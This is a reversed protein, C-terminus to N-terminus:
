LVTQNLFNRRFLIAAVETRNLFYRCFHIAAVLHAIKKELTGKSSCNSAFVDSLNLSRSSEAFKTSLNNSINNSTPNSISRKSPDATVPLSIQSKVSRTSEPSLEPLPSLVSSMHNSSTQYAISRESPDATVPLSFLSSSTNYSDNRSMTISSHHMRRHDTDVFSSSSVYETTPPSKADQVNVTTICDLMEDQSRSNHCRHGQVNASTIRHLMENRSRSNHRRRSPPPTSPPTPPWRRLKQGNNGINSPLVSVKDHTKNVRTERIIRRSPNSVNGHVSTHGLPDPRCQKKMEKKVHGIPKQEQLVEHELSPDRHSQINGKKEKSRGEREPRTAYSKSAQVNVQKKKLSSAQRLLLEKNADRLNHELSSSFVCNVYHADAQVANRHQPSKNQRHNQLQSHHVMQQQQQQVPTRVFKNGIKTESPYEETTATDTSSSLRNMVVKKRENVTADRQHMRQLQSCSTTWLLLSFMCAIWSTLIVSPGGPSSAVISVYTAFQLLVFLTTGVALILKYMYLLTNSRQLDIMRKSSSRSLTTGGRSHYLDLCGITLYLLLSLVSCLVSLIVATLSHSCYPMQDHYGNCEPGNRMVMLSTTNCISSFLGMFLLIRISSQNSSTTDNQAFVKVMLYTSGYLCIYSFYFLNANWVENVKVAVEASIVDDDYRPYLIMGSAICTFMSIFPTVIHELTTFRRPPKRSETKSSTIGFQASSKYASLMGLSITLVFSLSSLILVATRLTSTSHYDSNTSPAISCILVLYAAALSLYLDCRTRVIVDHDRYKVVGLDESSKSHHLSRNRSRGHTDKLEHVTTRQMRKERQNVDQHVM